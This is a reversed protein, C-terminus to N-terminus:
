KKGAKERAEKVKKVLEIKEKKVKALQKLGAGKTKRVKGKVVNRLHKATRYVFHNQRITTKKGTVIEELLKELEKLKEYSNADINADDRLKKIFSYNLKQVLIEIAEIDPIIAKDALVDGPRAALVKGYASRLRQYLRNLVERPSLATDVTPM